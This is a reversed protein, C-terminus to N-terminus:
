VGAPTVAEGMTTIDWIDTPKNGRAVALYLSGDGKLVAVMAGKQKGSLHEINVPHDKLKLDEEKVVPLPIATAVTQVAKTRFAQGTVTSAAGYKAM